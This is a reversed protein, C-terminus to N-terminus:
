SGLAQLVRGEVANRTYRAPFLARTAYLPLLRLQSILVSVGRIAASKIGSARPAAAMAAGGGKAARYVPHGHPADLWLMEAASLRAPLREILAHISAFAPRADAERRWCSHILEEVAPPVGAPLAPREHNLAVAVAAQLPPRDNFPPEHAVLEFLVCGYSFVDASRSYQQHLCVEPAMWQYTGTEATLAGGARTDDPAYAALGFDTIKVVSSSDLLINPSKLDRHLVGREHLHIMGASVGLSVHGFFGPPTAAQLATFLDGGSCFELVLGFSPTACILGLVRIVNPHRLTTLARVERKWDDVGGSGSAM